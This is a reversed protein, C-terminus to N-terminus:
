GLGKLITAARECDEVTPVLAVRFYGECVAIRQKEERLPVPEEDM